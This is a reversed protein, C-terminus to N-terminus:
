GVEGDLELLRASAFSSGHELQAALAEHPAPIVRVSATGGADALSAEALAVAAEVDHLEGRYVAVGKGALGTDALRVEVLAVPTGKLAAEAARVTGCVTPTEIVALSGGHAPARRGLIANYLQPHVDPLLVRDLVRDGGRAVGERLSEEVAATTGGILVLYRGRGITGCRVFAIPSKKLMADAALAGLPIDDLELAAIAPHRKM